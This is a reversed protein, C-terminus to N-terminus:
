RMLDPPKNSPPMFTKEHSVFLPGARKTPKIPQITHKSNAASIRNIAAIERLSNQFALHKEIVCRDTLNFHPIEYIKKGPM